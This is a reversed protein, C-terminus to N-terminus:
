ILLSIGLLLFAWRINPPYKSNKESDPNQIYYSEQAAYLLLMVIILALLLHLTITFPNLITHVLVSGLWGEILTLVFAVVLPWKITPIQPFYKIALVLAITITLGVLAGFLRNSYEIWAM